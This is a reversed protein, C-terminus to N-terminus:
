TRGDINTMRLPARAQADDCYDEFQVARQAGSVSKSPSVSQSPGLSTLYSFRGLAEQGCRGSLAACGRQGAPGGGALDQAGPAAAGAGGPARVAAQGTEEAADAGRWSRPATRHCRLSKPTRSQLYLVASSARAGELVCSLHLSRRTCSATWPARTAARCRGCSSRTAYRARSHTGKFWRWCVTLKCCICEPGELAGNWTGSVRSTAARGARPLASAVKTLESALKANRASNLAGTGRLTERTREAHALALRLQGVDATLASAHSEAIRLAEEVGRKQQTAAQPALRCGRPEFLNPFCVDRRCCAFYLHLALFPTM